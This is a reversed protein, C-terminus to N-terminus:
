RSLQTQQVNYVRLQLAPLDPAQGLTGQVHPLGSQCGADEFVASRRRRFWSTVDAATAFWAGERKFERVMDAYFDDWCREPAISRDHWNVTIAGGFQMANDIMHGVRKRAEGPTLDLCSPFFLATDMIHLPLELLRTVGLPRYVQTTGARYGVTENYGITSDYDAGAHDLALPSEQGFYLWHMRVGIEQRQTIGRVVDLEVRASSGDLWADIGHLGIESGASMLENIKGSIDAAGYRSARLGSPPGAGLHGPRNGFPIVFFTSRLGMELRLYRDFEYWFDKVLGLHVLPLKAAAVWNRLLGRMSLRKRCVRKISGFTARYLFGLTTHDCRHRRISPHDVDHTLCVIFRHGDPVPPIEVLPAGSTVILERLLAIHLELAPIGANSAPQGVTLLAEIEGLLDYGVRAVTTAGSRHLHIVPDLTEQDVLVDSGRAFTVCDGYIPVQYERYRLMRAHRRQSVRGAGEETDPGSAECAYSLVIDANSVPLDGAGACLLVEYRRGIRCWEWPTKFLEFFERVVASKSPSAIVGIM